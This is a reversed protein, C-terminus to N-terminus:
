LKLSGVLRLWGMVFGFLPSLSLLLTGACSLSVFLCRPLTLSLSHTCARVLWRALRRSRVEPVLSLACTLSLVLSCNQRSLISEISSQCNKSIKYWFYVNIKKEPRIRDVSHIRDIRDFSGIRDRYFVTRLINQCKTGYVYIYKKEHGITDVSHITDIRDWCFVGRVILDTQLDFDTVFYDSYCETSHARYETSLARCYVCRM